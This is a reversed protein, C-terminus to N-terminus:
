ALAEAKSISSNRDKQSRGAHSAAKDKYMEADALALLQQLTDGPKWEAMGAAASVKVECTTNEAQLKYTGFVWRQLRTLYTQVESPSCNMIVVFEDGGWRGVVDTVRSASRLESAFRKLLEDGILHGYTDNVQKLGNLDLMIVSFRQQKAIRHELDSELTYRNSLGTLSDRTAQKEVKQLQTEYTSLQAQLQTVLDGGDQTMQDVCAEIEAASQMIAARVRTLDDLDAIAQLHVTFGKFQQTYRQNTQSASEATQALLLLLEKVEGAKQKFYDSSSKGWQQLHEEVRKAAEKVVGPTLKNSLFGVVATLRIQLEQGLIPYAQTGSDGMATLAACYSELLAAFLLDEPNPVLHKKLEDPDLDLYKKISIM